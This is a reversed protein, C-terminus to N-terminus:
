SWRTSNSTVGSDLQEHSALLEHELFFIDNMTKIWTLWALEMIRIQFNYIIMIAYFPSNNTEANINRPIM